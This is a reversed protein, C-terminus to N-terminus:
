IQQHKQREAHIALKVYIVDLINQLKVQELHDQELLVHISLSKWEEKDQHSQAIIVMLVFALALKHEPLIIM